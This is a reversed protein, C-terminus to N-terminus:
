RTSPDIAVRRAGANARRRSAQLNPASSGLQDRDM